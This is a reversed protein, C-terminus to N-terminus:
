SQLSQYCWCGAMLLSMQSAHVSTEAESRKGEWKCDPEEVVWSNATQRRLLNALSAEELSQIQGEERKLTRVDLFALLLFPFSIIENDANSQYKLADNM